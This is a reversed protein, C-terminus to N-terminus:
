TDEPGGQPNWVVNQFNPKLCSLLLTLLNASQFAMLAAPLPHVLLVLSPVRARNLDDVHSILNPTATCISPCCVPSVALAVSALGWQPLDRSTPVRPHGETLSPIGSCAHKPLLVEHQNLSTPCKPAKPCFSPPHPALLLLFSSLHGQADDTFLHLSFSTMWSAPLMLFSLGWHGEPFLQSLPAQLAPQSPAASPPPFTLAHQEGFPLSTSELRLVVRWAPSTWSAGPRLRGMPQISSSARSRPSSSGRPTAPALAGHSCTVAHAAPLSAVLAWRLYRERSGRNSSNTLTILPPSTEIKIFNINFLNFFLEQPM